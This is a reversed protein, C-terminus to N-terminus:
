KPVPITVYVDPGGTAPAARIQDIMWAYDDIYFSQGTVNNNEWNPVGHDSLDKADNTGLMIVLLDAKTALVRPWSGRKDYPSDANRQM